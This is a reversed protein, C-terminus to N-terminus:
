ENVLCITGENYRCDKAQAEKCDIVSSEWM